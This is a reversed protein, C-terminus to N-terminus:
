DEEPLLMNVMDDRAEYVEGGKWVVCCKEHDHNLACSEKRLKSHLLREQSKISCFISKDMAACDTEHAFRAFPVVTQIEKLRRQPTKSFGVKYLARSMCGLPETICIIYIFGNEDFM